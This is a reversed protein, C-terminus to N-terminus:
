FPQVCCLVCTRNAIQQLTLLNPELRDSGGREALCIFLAAWRAAGKIQGASLAASSFGRPEISRCSCIRVASPQGQLACRPPPPHLLCGAIGREGGSLYFPSGMPRGKKNTQRLSRCILLWPTRRIQLLLDPCGFAPGAARLASPSPAPHVWCDGERRWVSSNGAAAITMRESRAAFHGHSM